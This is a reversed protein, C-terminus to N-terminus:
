GVVYTKSSNYRFFIVISFDEKYDSYSIPIKIYSVGNKTLNSTLSYNYYLEINGITSGNLIYNDVSAYSIDLNSPNVVIKKIEKNDFTIDVETDSIKQVNTITKGENIYNYIDKNILNSINSTDVYLETKIGKEVYINHLIFIIQFLFISITAVLSFSVLVEVLTFGKKNM